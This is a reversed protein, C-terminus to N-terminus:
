SAIQRERAAIKWHLFFVGMDILLIILTRVMDQLGERREGTLESSYSRNRAETLEKGVPPVYPKKEKESQYQHDSILSEKFAEDTQHKKWDRNDLTFEPACIKVGDWVAIGLTIVFCAVTFFCVALAYIELWSRKM